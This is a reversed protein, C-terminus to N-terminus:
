KLKGNAVHSFAFTILSGIGSVSDGKDELLLIVGRCLRGESIRTGRGGTAEIGSQVNKESGGLKLRVQKM